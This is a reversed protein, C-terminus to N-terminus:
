HLMETRPFREAPILASAGAAGGGKGNALYFCAANSELM